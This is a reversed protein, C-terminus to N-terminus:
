EGGKSIQGDLVVRIITSGRNPVAKGDLRIEPPLHDAEALFLVKGAAIQDGRDLKFLTQRRM